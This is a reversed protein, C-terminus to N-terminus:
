AVAVRARRRQGRLRQYEREGHWCADCPEEKRSRHRIFAAHTGHPRLPRPAPAVGPVVVVPRPTWRSDNWALLEAPSYDDPVMAALTVALVYLDNRTLRRVLVAVDDPGHERVACILRQADHVAVPPLDRCRRYRDDTM